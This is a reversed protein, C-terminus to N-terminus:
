GTMGMHTGDPCTAPITRSILDTHTHLHWNSKSIYTQTNLHSFSM